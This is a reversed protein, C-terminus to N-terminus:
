EKLGATSVKVVPANNGYWVVNWSELYGRIGAWRGLGLGGGTPRRVPSKLHLGVGWGAWRAIHQPPGELFLPM